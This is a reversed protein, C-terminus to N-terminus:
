ICGGQKAETLESQTSASKTEVVALRGEVEGFKQTFALKCKSEGNMIKDLKVNITAIETTHINERVQAIAQGKEITAFTEKTKTNVNHITVGVGVALVIVNIGIQIWEAGIM